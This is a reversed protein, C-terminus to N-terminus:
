LRQPLPAGTQPFQGSLWPPLQLILLSIGLLSLGLQPFWGRVTGIFSKQASYFLAVDGWDDVALMNASLAPGYVYAWAACLVAVFAALAPGIAPMGGSFEVWEKAM